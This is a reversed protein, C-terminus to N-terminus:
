SPCVVPRDYSRKSTHGIVVGVASPESNLWTESM